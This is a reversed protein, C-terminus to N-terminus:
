GSIDLVFTGYRSYICRCHNVRVLEVGFFGKRHPKKSAMNPRNENPAGVLAVNQQDGHEECRQDRDREEAPCVANIEAGTHIMCRVGNLDGVVSRGFQVSSAGNQRPHGGYQDVIGCTATLVCFSIAVTPTAIM